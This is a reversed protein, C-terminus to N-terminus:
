EDVAGLKEARRKWYKTLKIAENKEETLGYIREKLGAVAASLRKIEDFAAAIRDDSEMIAILAVYERHTEDAQTALEQLQDRLEACSECPASTVKSKKVTPKQPPDSDVADNSTSSGGDELEAVAAPLSKEGSIVQQVVDPSAERILKDARKQTMRGVGAVSARDDITKLNPGNIQEPDAVDSVFPGRPGNLKVQDGDQKVQRGRKAAVEWDQAAAVAV